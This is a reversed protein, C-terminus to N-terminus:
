EYGRNSLDFCSECLTAVWGVDRMQANFSGCAQCTTLSRIEYETIISQLEYYLSWRASMVEDYEEESFDDFGSNDIEIYYRLSGFKEKAQALIYFQDRSELRDHLQEVLFIWGQPINFGAFGGKAFHPQIKEIIRRYQDPVETTM